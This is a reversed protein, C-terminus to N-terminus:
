IGQVEVIRWPGTAIRQLVRRRHVTFHNFSRYEDDFRGFIDLYAVVQDVSPVGVKADADFLRRVASVRDVRVDYVDKMIVRRAAEWASNWEGTSPIRLPLFSPRGGDYLGAEWTAFVDRFAKEDARKIAAVMFDLVETPSADDKLASAGIATMESESAFVPEAKRLDVFFEGDEGARGAVLKVQHATLPRDRFTIMAPMPLIEAMFQYRERTGPQVLTGFRFLTRYFALYEPSESLRVVYAGDSGGDAVAWTQGLDNVMTSPTIWPLEVWRGSVEARAHIDPAPFTPVLKGAGEKKLAEWAEASAQKAREPTQRRARPLQPRGHRAEERCPSSRASGIATPASRSTGPYKKRLMEIREGQSLMEVLESRTNLTGREWSGDLIQTMKWVLKEYWISWAGSFGDSELTAPGGPALASKGEADRYILEPVLKAEIEVESEPALDQIAVCRRGQGWAEGV